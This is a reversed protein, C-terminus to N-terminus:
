PMSHIVKQLQKRIKQSAVSNIEKQVRVKSVKKILILNTQLLQLTKKDIQLNYQMSFKFARVIRLPDETIRKKANGIFNLKREALDTLGNHFDLLQKSIPSYYLANVTFDRRASDVLASKVFVVKPFRSKHTYTEKRFTTIELNQPKNKASRSSATIVGLKQHETLCEIGQLKLLRVVQAPKASTAIDVDVIKKNLLINRVAGGVFYSDPFEASLIEVVELAFEPFLKKNFTKKM